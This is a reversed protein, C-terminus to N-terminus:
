TSFHLQHILFQVFFSFKAMHQSSGQLLWISACTCWLHWLCVAKSQLNAASALSTLPPLLVVQFLAWYCLWARKVFFFLQSFVVYKLSSHDKTVRLPEIVRGLVEEQTLASLCWLTGPKFVGLLLPKWWHIKHLKFGGAEQGHRPLM